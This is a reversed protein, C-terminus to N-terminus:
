PSRRARCQILMTLTDSQVFSGDDDIYAPQNWRVVCETSGRRLGHVGSGAGDAMLEPIM